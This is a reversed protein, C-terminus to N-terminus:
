SSKVLKNYVWRAFKVSQGDVVRTVIDAEYIVVPWFLLYCMAVGWGYQAPTVDEGAPVFRPALWAGYSWLLPGHVLYISFSIDGLYQAFRSTFLRQLFPAFDITAVLFVAALPVWFYDAHRADRYYQPILSALTAFGPADEGGRGLEPMSLVYLSATFAALFALPKAAPSRLLGRIGGRTPPATTGDDDGRYSAVPLQPAQAATDRLTRYTRLDSLFMGSLFLFVNTEARYLCFSILTLTFGMRVFPRFKHMVALLTFVLFSCGFEVPLTWLNPDYPNVDRSNITNRIPYALAVSRSAWDMLQAGLTELRPPVRTAIAVEKSWPETPFAGLYSMVASTFLVFTAPMFLRPHRRFLSSSLSDVFEASRGLHSLKLLKLSIAYGSIVFFICVAPPGAILVRVIPLQIFLSSSDKWASHIDWSFYVLSSHHWVVIFAAVGRLGDLWSTPSMRRGTSVGAASPRAFSPLLFLLYSLWAGRRAAVVETPKENDSDSGSGSGESAASVRSYGRAEPMLPALGRRLWRMAM